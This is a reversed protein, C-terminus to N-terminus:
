LWKNLLIGRDIFFVQGEMRKRISEKAADTIIDNVAIFVRTILFKSGKEDEYETELADIGQDIIKKVYSYLERGEEARIKGIKVVIANWERSGFKNINSFVIDKGHEAHGRTGCNIKIDTYGLNELILALLEQFEQENKLEKLKSDLEERTLFTIADQKHIILEDIKILNKELISKLRYYQVLFQSFINIVKM